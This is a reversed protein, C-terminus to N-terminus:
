KEEPPSIADSDIEREIRDIIQNLSNKDRSIPADYSLICKRLFYEIQTNLSRMELVCIRKLAEHLDSDLRLTFSIKEKPPRVTKAM